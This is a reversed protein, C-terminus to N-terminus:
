LSHVVSLFINSHMFLFEELERVPQGDKRSWSGWLTELSSLHFLMAHSPYLTDGWFAIINFAQERMCVTNLHPYKPFSQDMFAGHILPSIWQIWHILASIFVIKLLSSLPPPFTSPPPQYLLFYIMQPTGQFSIDQGQAKGTVERQRRAAM